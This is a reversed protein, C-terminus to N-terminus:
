RKVNTKKGKQTKLTRCKYKSVTCVIFLINKNNAGLGKLCFLLAPFFM